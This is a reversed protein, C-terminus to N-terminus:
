IGLLDKVLDFRAGKVLLAFIIILGIGLAWELTAFFLFKRHEVIWVKKFRIGLLLSSSFLISHWGRQFLGGKQKNFLNAIELEDKFIVNRFLEYYKFYWLFAFGLIIPLIVFLLFRWPQYGWGFFFGYVKWYSENLINKKQEALEFMVEDASKKDDQVLFNDRLSHYIIEIQKYHEIRNMPPYELKIRATNKAQFQSWYFRLKGEPFRMDKLYLNEVSDFSTQRFDIGESFNAYTFDITRGFRANEFDVEDLFNAGVFLSTDGLKANYFSVAKEFRVGRFDVKGQFNTWFKARDYFKAREFIADGGFSAEQFNTEGRFMVVSFDAIAVFKTKHFWAIKDFKAPGQIAWFDAMYSERDLGTGSSAKEYINEWTSDMMSSKTGFYVAEYFKAREFDGANSFKAKNFYTIGQFKAEDFYAQENFKASTFDAGNEFSARSFVATSTFNVPPKVMWETKKSLDIQGGYPWDTPNGQQTFGIDLFLFAHLGIALIAFLRLNIM